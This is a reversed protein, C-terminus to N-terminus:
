HHMPGDVKFYMSYAALRNLLVKGDAIIKATTAEDAPMILYGEPGGREGLATTGSNLLWPGKPSDPDTGVDSDSIYPAYFMYHPMNMTRVTKDGPKGTYVRMIPALMYSIGPRAPARYIGKQIRSVMSDKIQLPTLRGLARMEAPDRYLPWYTKAGEADFAIPAFVDKRFEVWEWNTRAVFCVFGNSGKQAVYYGKAPDLLYVTAAARLHAPLASLALDTELDAPMKDLEWGAPKQTRGCAPLLLTCICMLKLFRTM